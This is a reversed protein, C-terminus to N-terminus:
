AAGVGWSARAESWLRRRIGGRRQRQWEQRERDMGSWSTWGSLAACQKLLDLNVLETLAEPGPWPSSHRSPCFGGVETWWAELSHVARTWPGGGHKGIGQWRIGYFDLHSLFDQCQKGMPSFKILSSKSEWVNELVEPFCVGSGAEGALVTIPM